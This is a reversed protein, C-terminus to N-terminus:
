NPAPLNSANGRYLVTPNKLSEDLRVLEWRDFRMRAPDAVRRIFYVGDAGAAAQTIGTRAEGWASERYVDTVTFSRDVSYLWSDLATNQVLLMAGDARLAVGSEARAIEPRGWPSLLAALLSALVLVASLAAPRKM